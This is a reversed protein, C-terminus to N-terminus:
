KSAIELAQYWENKMEVTKARLIFSKQKSLLRFARDRKGKDNYDTDRLPRSNPLM